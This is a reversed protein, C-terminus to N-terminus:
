QEHAAAVRPEDVDLEVAAIVRGLEDRRARADVLNGSRAPIGAAIGVPDLVVRRFARAEIAHKSGAEPM